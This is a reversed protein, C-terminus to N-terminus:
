VLQQYDLGQEYHYVMSSCSKKSLLGMTFGLLVVIFIITGLIPLSKYTLGGYSDSKYTLVWTSNVSSPPTFYCLLEGGNLYYSNTSCTQSGFNTPATYESGEWTHRMCVNDIYPSPLDCCFSHSKVLDTNEKIIWDILYFNICIGIGLLMLYILMRVPYVNITKHKYPEIQPEQGERQVEHHTIVKCICSYNYINPLSCPPNNVREIRNFIISEM